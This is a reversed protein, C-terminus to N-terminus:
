GSPDRQFAAEGRAGAHHLIERRGAGPDHDVIGVRQGGFQPERKRAVGPRPSIAFHDPAAALRGADLEDALALGGGAIFRPIRFMRRAITRAISGEAASESLRFGSLGAAVPLSSGTLGAPATLM